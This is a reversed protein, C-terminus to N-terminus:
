SMAVCIIPQGTYWRAIARQQLADLTEDALRDIQEGHYSLGNIQQEPAVLLILKMTDTTAATNRELKALRAKIASSM